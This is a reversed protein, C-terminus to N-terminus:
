RKISKPFKFFPNFDAISNLRNRNFYVDQFFAGFAVTM